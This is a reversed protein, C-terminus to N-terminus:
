GTVFNYLAIGLAAMGLFAGGGVQLAAPAQGGCAYFLAGAAGGVVLAALMIIAGWIGRNGANSSAV